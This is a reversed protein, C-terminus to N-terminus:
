SSIGIDFSVNRDYKRDCSILSSVCLGVSLLSSVADCYAEGLCCKFSICCFSRCAVDSSSADPSSGGPTLSLGACSGEGSVFRISSSCNSVLCM